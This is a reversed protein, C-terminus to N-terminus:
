HQLVRAKELSRDGLVQHDMATDSLGKVWPKRLVTAQTYLLFVDPSDAQIIQQAQKYLGVSLPRDTELQARALLADVEPNSYKSRNNSQGTKMNPVLFNEPDPYDAGWGVFTLQVQGAKFRDQITKSDVPDLDVDVGLAQKWQEKLLTAVAPNNGTNAFTMTVKPLNKGDPFGAEALLQKAKAPNYNPEVTPDHGPMAPPIFSTAPAGSGKLAVEILTKRDIAYAFARRVNRNDFPPKDNVMSARFTTLKDIAIFEKSLAADAKVTPLLAAPVTVEDLDGTRYANYAQNADEIMAFRISTLTPKDGVYQDNRALTLHDKHAWEKLVFPGSSVLNGPEIWKEGKAAIVDQRLPYAIWLVLYNIFVANPKVLTIRVTQEDPTEIAMAAVAADLGADGPKMAGVEAGGKIERMFSAYTGASRPDASRRLAYALDKSTLAKGDSWTLGTRLHVTYTLGDESVGHNERTPVETAMDPVLKLNADFKFPGRFLQDIITLETAFSARSPDLTSPEGGLNLRLTQDAAQQRPDGCAALALAAVAAIVLIRLPTRM